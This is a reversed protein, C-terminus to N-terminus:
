EIEVKASIILKGNLKYGPKLERKVKDGKGEIAEMIEPNFKEGKTKIEEVGGNTLVDQFQKKVYKVGELWADHNKEDSFELSTKLNDYVPIIEALLMENAFKAFQQKEDASRKVLNQYDAFARKYKEELEKKENKLEELENIKKKSEKVPKKNDDINKKTM